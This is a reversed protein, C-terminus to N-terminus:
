GAADEESSLAGRIAPVCAHMNWLGLTSVSGIRKNNISAAYGLFCIICLTLLGQKQSKQQSRVWNQDQAKSEGKHKSGLRSFQLQEWEWRPSSLHSQGASHSHWVTTGAVTRLHVCCVREGFYLCHKPLGLSGWEWLGNERQPELALLILLFAAAWPQKDPSFRLWAGGPCLQLWWPLEKLGARCVWADRRGCSSGSAAWSTRCCPSM